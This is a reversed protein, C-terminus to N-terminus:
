KSLAQQAQELLEKGHLGERYMAMGISTKIGTADEINKRLRTTIEDALSKDVNTLVIVFESEDHRALFDSLRTQRKFIQAIEKYVSNKVPQDHELKLRVLALPENNEKADSIIFDLRIDLFDKNALGTVPDHMTLANNQKSSATGSTNSM